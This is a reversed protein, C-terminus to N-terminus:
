NAFAILGLLYRVLVTLFLDTLVWVRLALRVVIATM